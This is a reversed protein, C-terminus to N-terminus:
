EHEVPLTASYDTCHMIEGHKFEIAGMIRFDKIM